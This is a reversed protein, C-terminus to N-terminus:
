IKLLWQRQYNYNQFKSWDNDIIHYNLGENMKKGNFNENESEKKDISNKKRLIKKEKKENKLDKIKRKRKFVEHKKKKFIKKKM